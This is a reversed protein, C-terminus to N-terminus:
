MGTISLYALINTLTSETKQHKYTEKGNPEVEIMAKADKLLEKRKRKVDTETELRIQATVGQTLSEALLHEVM